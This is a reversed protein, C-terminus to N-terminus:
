FAPQYIVKQTSRKNGQQISVLYLGTEMKKRRDKNVTWIFSHQGTDLTGEYITKVMEGLSNFVTITTPLKSDLSQINVQLQHTFPSPYVKTIPLNSAETKTHLIALENTVITPTNLATSLKVKEANLIERDLHSAGNKQVLGILSLQALDWNEDLVTTYTYVYQQGAKTMRVPFTRTTGWVGGVAKRLVHRHVFNPIPNGAGEFPHGDYAHYFNAQQYGTTTQQVSDEVIWLNVGLNHAPLVRMFTTTITATLTRTLTDLSVNNVQVRAKAEENTRETVKEALDQYDSSFQIFPKDEFLYRDLLFVNVGGSSYTEAIGETFENAMPDSVHVSVGIVNDFQKTLSDLTVSGQPCFGCWTGTLEELIIKKSHTPQAFALIPLIYFLGICVKILYVRM